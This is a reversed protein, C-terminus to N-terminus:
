YTIINTPAKASTDGYYGDFVPLTGTNGNNLEGGTYIDAKLYVSGTVSVTTGRMIDVDSHVMLGTYSYATTSGTWELPTSQKIEVYKISTPMASIKKVGGKVIVYNVFHGVATTNLDTVNGDVTISVFGGNAEATANSISIYEEDKNTYPLNIRGMKNPIENNVGAPVHKFENAFNANETQNNTIFTKADPDNHEILGYNNIIGQTNTGVTAFVGKNWVVGINETGTTTYDKPLTTADNTFTTAGASGDQRYQANKFITVTGYNTVNFQVNLTGATIDWKAGSANEFPVSFIQASPSANNMIKLTATADSTFTGRNIISKIGTATADVTVNKSNWKWSEGKNLAVPVTTSSNKKIFTLDAAIAGGGTIVITECKEGDETCPKVSFKRASAAANIDNILKITKQSIKFEKTDKDGDLIVTVPDLNMQKWVRAVDRLQKDSKIHLESMDLYNLLVTVYRISATGTPEDKVTGSTPSWTSFTKITQAMGQALSKAVIKFEGGGISTRGHEYDTEASATKVIRYWAKNYEDSTYKTGYLKITNDNPDNVTPDAIVVKGYNTNIVVGAQDVGTTPYGTAATPLILFKSSENGTTCTTTLKDVQGDTSIDSTNFETVSCFANNAVNSWNPGTAGNFSLPIKTTFKTQGNPNTRLETSSVKISDIADEDSLGASGGKYLKAIEKDSENYDAKLILQSAMPRMYVPYKRNYGATNPDGLDYTAPDANDVRAKINILDSVYPINNEVNDLNAPIKITLADSSGINFATDVPWVMIAAGQKIMSPTTLTAPSGELGAQAKYTANEFGSTPYTPGNSITGGHYLTFLDGDAASWKITANEQGTMSARTMADNNIVEFQVPSTGDALDQNQGQFDDTSCATLAALSMAAFLLKKNM